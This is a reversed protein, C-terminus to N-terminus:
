ATHRPIAENSRDISIPQSDELDAEVPLHPVLRDLWAPRWWNRDGLLEMTSPVIVLRVVTADLLVAVALGVGFLQLARNSSFAFGAFVVFMISAAATIVRATAGLGRAVAVTNDGTRDYEERIRSLLFVEYDMSLGFVIAFLMMPAWAEIPGPEGISLLDAGWGWQFVAVLVGYAAGISLLNMVVAKIPVLVSRFVGMLVFFSLTLVVAIFVPLRSASFDAYDVAAAQAGGVSVVLDTGATIDPIITGRLQHVLESTARSQPSTAPFVQLLAVTGLENRIIPTTAAVEDLSGLRDVLRELAVDAAKDPVSAALLLPGNVGPGFGEALLDYARRTTDSTPRNGADGFGLQMALTPLALVLLVAVGTLAALGARRQVLRSWRQWPQAHTDHRRRHPLALRDINHGVFGLLAPLLTVSGVMTTAVGSAAAVGLARNIDLGVVLLGLVSVVVTLGAFIVARGATDIASEVAAAPESGVQLLERYRTVIFLAYDIGVGLGLMIVLQLTFSPMTILNALLAVVAAGTGIGFIATLLPLGMALVSGFAILLIVMAAILGVAESGGESEDSFRDGGLEFRIGPEAASEVLRRIQEVADAFAADSRDTLSLQAFAVTGDDSVQNRGADEYPSTITIGPVAEEVDLLLGEVAERVSPSKVGADSAIVLQGEFGARSGFGNERLLDAAKQSETGPLDFANEFTGGAGRALIGLGALVALWGALV